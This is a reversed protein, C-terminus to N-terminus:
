LSRTEASEIQAIWGGQRALKLGPEALQQVIRCSETRAENRADRSSGLLQDAGPPEQALQVNGEGRNRNLKRRQPLAGGIQRPQGLPQQLTGCGGARVGDGAERRVRPLEKLGM